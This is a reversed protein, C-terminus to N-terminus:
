DYSASRYAKQLLGSFRNTTITQETPDTTIIVINALEILRSIKDFVLLITEILM